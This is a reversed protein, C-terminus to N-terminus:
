CGINMGHLRPPSDASSYHIVSITGPKLQLLPFENAKMGLVQGLISKLTTDCAVVLGTILKSNNLSHGTYITRQWVKSFDQRLVQFPVTTPHDQLIREATAQSSELDNCISFDISESKLLQALCHLQEPVITSQLCQAANSPVLLLRLGRDGAKPLSEGCHTTINLAELVPPEHLSQGGRSVPFNLVSIGCSSLQLVHFDEPMLGLATNILTRITGSHSVVLVTKSIHQPLLDQWFQRAPEYCYLGQWAAALDIERLNRDSRLDLLSDSAANMALLIKTATEYANKYPSTYIADVKFFENLAVGTQYAAQHGKETLVAEELYSQSFSQAYSISQGHRVLIVRTSESEHSFQCHM